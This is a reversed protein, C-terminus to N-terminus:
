RWEIGLSKLKEQFLSNSYLKEVVSYVSLVSRHLKERHVRHERHNKLGYTGGCRGEISVNQSRLRNFVDDAMDARNKIGEFEISKFDLNNLRKAM